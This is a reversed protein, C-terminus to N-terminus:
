FINRNEQAQLPIDWCNKKIKMNKQLGRELISIIAGFNKSWDMCKDCKSLLMSKRHNLASAEFVANLFYRYNGRARSGTFDSARDLCKANWERNGLTIRGRLM